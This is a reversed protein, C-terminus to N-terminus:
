VLLALGIGGAFMSAVTIISSIGLMSMGTIGHGSTCGGAMRAGMVMVFGGMIGRAPTIALADQMMLEPVTRALTYSSALIGGAFAVARTLPFVATKGVTDSKTQYGFLSWFWHGVDEYFSSVGVPSKTMLLAALQALGIFLGGVVPDLLTKVHGNEPVLRQLAATMALCMGEFMLIATNPKLGLKGPLSLQEASPPPPPQSPCATNRRIWKATLAYFTGGLVGGLIAWRGSPIGTGVQVVVTGPCAGTLTMGAGVM